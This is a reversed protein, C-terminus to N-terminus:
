RRLRATAPGLDPRARASALRVARLDRHARERAGDEEPGPVAPATAARPETPTLRREAPPPSARGAPARDARTRRTRSPERSSTGSASTRARDIPHEIEAPQAPLCGLAVGRADATRRDARLRRDPRHGRPEQDPPRARGVGSARPALGSGAVRQAIRRNAPKPWCSRSGAWEESVREPVSPPRDSGAGRRASRAPRRRPRPRSPRPRARPRRGPHAEGHPQRPRPAPRRRPPARDKPRPRLRPRLVLPREAVGLLRAPELLGAEPGSAVIAVVARLRRSAGLTLCCPTTSSPERAEVRRGPRHAGRRSRSPRCPGRRRSSRRRAPAARPRPPSPRDLARGPRSGPGLRDAAQHQLAAEAVVGLVADRLARPASSRRGPGGTLCPRAERERARSHRRRPRAASQRDLPRASSATTTPWSWGARGRARAQPGHADLRGPRYRGRHHHLKRSRRRHQGPHPM